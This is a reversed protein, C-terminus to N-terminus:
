QEEEIPVYQLAGVDTRETRDNGALDYPIEFAIDPNGAGIAPSEETLRFDHLQTDNFLPDQNVLTNIFADPTTDMQTRILCHDFTFDASTGEYLNFFIEEQNNGYIITNGFFLHEFPRVQINGDIDEYYNNLLVSPTNRVDIRYYNAITTHRFDYRGGLALLLAHQGCNAIALNEAVVHSGQAFLGALSMNKIISNSIQLTPRTAHGLTDVHLGVSGNKIIAHDIVHDKSTATLWIRGWQGPQEQYFSELRDGQFVVPQDASGEVKFSSRALFVLSANNHFHIRAGEKVRLTIDPAVVALGYIVYPLDATWQTDETIIHYEVGSEPDTYNPHIFHADQGWAVLKVDQINQNTNFEISDVITLPLNQNVPDVTVEVFVYISDKAEIDIDHLVTGSRGDVNMRYYSQGGEALRVTSIRIRQHHRNYVKFSRTASGLTTFVTDFLLSDRSFELRLSPDSEFADDRCSWFATSVLLLALFITFFRSFSMHTGNIELIFVFAMESHYSRWLFFPLNCQPL